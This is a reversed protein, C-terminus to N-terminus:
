RQQKRRATVKTSRSTVLASMMRLAVDKALSLVSQHRMERDLQRQAEREADHQERSLRRADGGGLPEWMKRDHGEAAWEARRVSRTRRGDSRALARTLKANVKIQRRTVPRYRKLM